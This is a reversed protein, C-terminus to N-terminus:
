FHRFACELQFIQDCLSAVFGMRAAENFSLMQLSPKSAFTLPELPSGRSSGAKETARRKGFEVRHGFLYENMAGRALSQPASIVDILRRAIVRDHNTKRPM